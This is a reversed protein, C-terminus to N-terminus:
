NKPEGLYKVHILNRPITSVINLKVHKRRTREVIDKKCLFVNLASISRFQQSGERLFM